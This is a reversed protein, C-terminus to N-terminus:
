TTKSSAKPAPNVHPEAKIRYQIVVTNKFVNLCDATLVVAITCSKGNQM